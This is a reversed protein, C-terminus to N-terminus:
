DDIGLIYELKDELKDIKDDLLNVKIELTFDREFEVKDELRELRNDLADILVEYTRYTEWAKSYDSIRTLSNIATELKEYEAYIEIYEADSTITSNTTTNINPVTTATTITTTTTTATSNKSNLTISKTDGNWGVDKGMLEGIARLPLYTTDEYSIPVINEGNTNKFTTEVGDIYITLDPRTQAQINKITETTAYATMSVSALIVSTIMISKLYKM